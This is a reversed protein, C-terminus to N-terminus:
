LSGAPMQSQILRDLQHLLPDEPRTAVIAQVTKVLPWNTESGDRITKSAAYNAAEASVDLEDTEGTQLYDQGSRWSLVRGRLTIQFWTIEDQSREVIIDFYPENGQYWLRESAGTADGKMLEPNICSLSKGLTQITAEDLKM